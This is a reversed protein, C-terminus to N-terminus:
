LIYFTFIVEALRVLLHLSFSQVRSRLNFPMLRGSGM